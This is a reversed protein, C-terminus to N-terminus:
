IRGGRAGVEPDGGGRERTVSDDINSVLQQHLERGQVLCAPQAERSLACWWCLGVCGGGGGGRARRGCRGAVDGQFPGHLRHTVRLVILRSVVGRGAQQCVWAHMCGWGMDGRMGGCAWLKEGAQAAERQLGGQLLVEERQQCCVRHKLNSGPRQGVAQADELVKYRCCFRLLVVDTLLEKLCVHLAEGHLRGPHSPPAGPLSSSLHVNWCTCSKSCFWTCCGLGLGGQVM